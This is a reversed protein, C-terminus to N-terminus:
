GSTGTNKKKFHTKRPGRGFERTLGSRLCGGAGTKTNDNKKEDDTVQKNKNNYQIPRKQCYYAETSM